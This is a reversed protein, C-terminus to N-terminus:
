QIKHPGNKENRLKKTGKKQENNKTTWKRQERNKIMGNERNKIENHDVKEIRLKKNDM